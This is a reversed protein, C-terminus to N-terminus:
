DSQLWGVAFCWIMKLWIRRLGWMRASQKNEKLMDGATHIKHLHFLLFFMFPLIVLTISFFIHLTLLQWRIRFFLDQSYKHTTIGVATWKEREPRPHQNAGLDTQILAPVRQRWCGLPDPSLIEACQLLCFYYFVIFDGTLTQEPKLLWWHRCHWLLFFGTTLYLVMSRQSQYLEHQSATTALQCVQFDATSIFPQPTHTDANTGAVCRPWRKKTASLSM